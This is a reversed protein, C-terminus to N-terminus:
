RIEKKEGRCLFDSSEDNVIPINNTTSKGPEDEHKNHQGSSFRQHVPEAIQGCRGITGEKGAEPDHWRRYVTITMMYQSEGLDPIHLAPKAPSSAGRATKRLNGVGGDSTEKEGSAGDVCPNGTQPYESCNYNLFLILSVPHLRWQRDDGDGHTIVGRGGGDM